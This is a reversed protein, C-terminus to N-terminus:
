FKLLGQRWLFSAAGQTSVLDARGKAPSLTNAASSETTNEHGETHSNQIFRQRDFRTNTYIPQTVTVLKVNRACKPSFLYLHNRLTESCTHTEQFDTYRFGYKARIRFNFKPRNQANKKWSLGFDACQHGCISV